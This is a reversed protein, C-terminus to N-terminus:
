EGMAAKLEDLSLWGKGDKVAEEAEQLKKLLKKEALNREYDEIDLVVFRGRGNKTLFVPEGVQCNKLVENYNRLDSVPLINPM